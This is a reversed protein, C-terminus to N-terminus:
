ETTCASLADSSISDLAIALLVSPSAASEAARDLVIIAVIAFAVWNDDLMWVASSALVADSLASEAATLALAVISDAIEIDMIALPAFSASTDAYACLVLARSDVLTTVSIVASWFMEVYALSATVDNDLRMSLLRWSALMIDFAAIAVAPVNDVNRKVLVCISLATDDAM